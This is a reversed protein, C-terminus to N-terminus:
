LGVSKIFNQLILNYKSYQQPNPKAGEPSFLLILSQINRSQQQLSKMLQPNRTALFQDIQGKLTALNAEIKSAINAENLYSNSHIANLRNLSSQLKQVSQPSTQASMQNALAFLRENQDM